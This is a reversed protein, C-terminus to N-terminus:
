SNLYDELYKKCYGRIYDEDYMYKQYKLMDSLNKFVKVAEKTSGAKEYVKKALPGFRSYTMDSVLGPISSQEMLTGWLTIRELTLQKLILKKQELKEERSLNSSLLQELKNYYKIILEDDEHVKEVKAATYKYEDSNEGDKEKIYDLAGYFGTIDACAEDVDVLLDTFDHSNEHFIIFVKRFLDAYLMEQSIRSDNAVSEATRYYVDYGNAELEAQRNSAEKKDEFYEADLDFYTKPLELEKCYYLIHLTKFSEDYSLYNDSKPVGLKKEGWDEISKIEEIKNAITEDIDQKTFVYDKIESRPINLKKGEKNEVTISKSDEQSLYYNYIKSGDKKLILDANVQTYSFTLAAASAVITTLLRKKLGKM